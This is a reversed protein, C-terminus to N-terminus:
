AFSFCAAQNSFDRALAAVSDACEVDIFVVM